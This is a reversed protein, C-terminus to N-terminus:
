QNQQKRQEHAIIKRLFRLQDAFYISKEPYNLSLQTIIEYARQYQRRKIFMKALSASLLSNDTPPKPPTSSRRQEPPIVPQPEQSPILGEQQKQKLIFTNLLDDDSGPKAQSLDPISEEEEKALLQSYDPTPNFIMRELMAEEEPSTSGYTALFTDIVSNTSPSNKEEDPYFDSDCMEGDLQMLTEEDSINVAISRQLKVRVDDSMSVGSRLALLPPLSFYPYKEILVLAEDPTPTYGEIIKDILQQEQQTM